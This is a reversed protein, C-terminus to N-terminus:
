RVQEGQWLLYRRVSEEVRYPVRPRINGGMIVNRVGHEGTCRERGIWKNMDITSVYM